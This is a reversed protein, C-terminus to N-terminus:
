CSLRQRIVTIHRACGRPAEQGGGGYEGDKDGEVGDARCQRCRGGSGITRLLAVWIPAGEFARWLEGAADAHSGCDLLLELGRISVLRVANGSVNHAGSSGGGSGRPTHPHWLNAVGIAMRVLHTKGM